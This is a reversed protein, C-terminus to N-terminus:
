EKAFFCVSCFFTLRLLFGFHLALSWLLLSSPILPDEVYLQRTFLCPCFFTTTLSGPQCLKSMACGCTYLRLLFYHGHNSLKEVVQRMLFDNAFSERRTVRSRAFINWPVKKLRLLSWSLPLSSVYLKLSSIHVFSTAKLPRRKEVTQTLVDRRKFSEFHVKRTLAASFPWYVNRMKFCTCLTKRYWPLIKASVHDSTQFHHGCAHKNVLGWFEAIGSWEM